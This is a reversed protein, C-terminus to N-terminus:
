VPLRLRAVCGRVGDGRDELTLTGGHAEAIQRSLALGIGSGTRKTTFFPTFLNATSPLGPGEDVVRLDLAGSAESWEIRVGGGTEAAAEVANSVLNILLQDLQDGDALVTLAPGPAVGVARRKELQAVRDVWAAVSVPALVPAPLRAMRAYSRMFRSLSESRGGIVALGRKLDDDADAPRPDRGLLAALSGAISQIPALSNNIEHSLVRVLRQWAQREEERLAQRLDTLVLLQMPVGGQRFTSRRLEWRGASGLFAADLVRRPEGTLCEALGLQAAPRGTLREASQGLLREGARNALRVAGGGDVAFVAVDIEEMVRRLLATAELAGLRQARLPERLANVEAFALGLPDDLRAGRARISYDGERLAAILNALTQLPRVVEARVAGAVALWAAVVAGGVTWQVRPPYEGVALLIMAAAVAPLGGALVLAFVRADHTLKPRSWRTSM